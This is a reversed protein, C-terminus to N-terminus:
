TSGRVKGTPDVIEVTVKRQERAGIAVMLVRLANATRGSKGIVRGVDSQAVQVEFLSVDGTRIERVSVEDPHTVLRQVVATLLDVM